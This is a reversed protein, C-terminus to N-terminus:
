CFGGMRGRPESSRYGAGTGAYLDLVRRWNASTNDLFSFIAQRVVSTTPRISRRPLTKLHTGKVKGGTIRM